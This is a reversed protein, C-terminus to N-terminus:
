NPSAFKLKTSHEYFYNELWVEFMVGEVEVLVTAEDQVEELVGVACYNDNYKEAALKGALEFTQETIMSNEQTQKVIYM